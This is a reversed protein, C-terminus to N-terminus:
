AQEKLKKGVLRYKARGAKSPCCAPDKEAYEKTRLLIEGDAIAELEVSRNMKGGVAESGVAVLQGKMRLFAALYQTYNNSGHQGEITYLVAVDPTGDGDLDGRVIKRAKKYEEGEDEAAQKAIYRDIVSLEASQSFAASALATLVAMGASLVLRRKM